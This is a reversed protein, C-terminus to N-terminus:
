SWNGHQHKKKTKSNTKDHKSSTPQQLVSPDQDRKNTVNLDEDVVEMEDFMQICDSLANSLGSSKPTVKSVLSLIQEVSLQVKTAMSSDLTLSEIPEDDFGKSMGFCGNEDDMSLPLLDLMGDIGGNEVGDPKYQLIWQTLVISRGSLPVFCWNSNFQQERVFNLDIVIALLLQKGYDMACNNSFTSKLQRFISECKHTGRRVHRTQFRDVIDYTLELSEPFDLNHHFIEKEESHFALLKPTITRENESWGEKDEIAKFEHIINTIKDYILAGKEMPQLEKSSKCLAEGINDLFLRARM